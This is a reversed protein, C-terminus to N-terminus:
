ELALRKLLVTELDRRSDLIGLIVVNQKADVFYFLRYPRLILERYRDLFPLFSLEPVRRGRLPFRDLSQAALEIRSVWDDAVLPNEQYLLAEISQLDEEAESSWLVGRVGM